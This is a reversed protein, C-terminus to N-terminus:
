RAPNPHEDVHPGKEKSIELKVCYDEDEANPVHCQEVRGELSMQFCRCFSIKRESDHGYALLKIESESEWEVAAIYLHDSKLVSQKPESRLLREKLDIPSGRRDVSVPLNNTYDGGAFDNIVVRRSDPSWLVAADRDYTYLVRHEGSELNQLVLALARRTQDSCFVNTVRYRGDPSPVPQRFARKGPVCDHAKGEAGQGNSASLAVCWVLATVSVLIWRRYLRDLPLRM